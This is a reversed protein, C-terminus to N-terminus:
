YIIDEDDVFWASNMKSPISMYVSFAEGDKLNVRQKLYSVQNQLEGESWKELPVSFKDNLTQIVLLGNM